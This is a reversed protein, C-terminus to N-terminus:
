LGNTTIKNSLPKYYEKCHDCQHICKSDGEIESQCYFMREIGLLRLKQERLWRNLMKFQYQTKEILNKMNILVFM